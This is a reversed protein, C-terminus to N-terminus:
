PWNWAVKNLVVHRTCCVTTGVRPGVTPSQPRTTGEKHLFLSHAVIRWPLLTALSREQEVSTVLEYTLGTREFIDHSIMCFRYRVKYRDITEGVKGVKLAPVIVDWPEKLEYGGIEYYEDDCFRTYRSRAGDATELCIV